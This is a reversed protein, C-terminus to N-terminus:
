TSAMACLASAAALQDPLFRTFIWDEHFAPAPNNFCPVGLGLLTPVVVNLMRSTNHLKGQAHKVAIINRL